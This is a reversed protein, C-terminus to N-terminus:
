RPEGASRERILLAGLIFGVFAVAILPVGLVIAGFLTFTLAYGIARETPGVQTRRLQHVANGFLLGIVAVAIARGLPELPGTLLEPRVLVVGTVVLASGPTILAAVATVAGWWGRLRYGILGSLSLFKPAPILTSVVFLEQLEDERLWGAGVVLDQELKRTAAWMGGFTTAGIRLMVWAVRGLRVRESM